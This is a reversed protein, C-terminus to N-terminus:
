ILGEKKYWDATIKAGAEFSINAKFGFEREAKSM